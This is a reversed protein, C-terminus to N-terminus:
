GAINVVVRGTIQSSLFRQLYEPAQALSCETVAAALQSPQWLALQQWAAQKEALPIEVSDVGLLNAGRLIFPFVSSSFQTASALGYCCLSGNAPLQKLGQSIYDGGLGDLIAQWRPKLLPRRSDDTLYDERSIVEKAGLQTLLAQAEPKGSVASVPHGLHSLLAVALSGVGGSAGTVAVAAQPELGYHQLKIIALAATLGATGFVMADRLSLDTPCPVVWEHPVQIYDALGGSTNMGLDYGTVIVPLGPQLHEADSSVITGAADIGPTHPYHRTVGKNGSASLADKYNLSSYHVRILTDHEPLQDLTSTVLQCQYGTESAHIRLANYPTNATPHSM